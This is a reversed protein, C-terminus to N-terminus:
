DKAVPLLRGLAAAPSRSSANVRNQDLQQNKSVWKYNRRDWAVVNISLYRLPEIIEPLKPFIQVLALV